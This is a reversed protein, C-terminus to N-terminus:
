LVVHLPNAPAVLAHSPAWSERPLSRSTPFPSSYTANKVRTQPHMASAPRSDQLMRVRNDSATAFWGAAFGLDWLLSAGLAGCTICAGLGNINFSAGFVHDIETKFINTSEDRCLNTVAISNDGRFGHAALAVEVRGLFDDLGLASPFHKTIQGMRQSLYKTEVSALEAADVDKAKETAM